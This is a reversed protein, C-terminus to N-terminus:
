RLSTRSEAPSNPLSALAERCRRETAYAGRELPHQDAPKGVYRLGLILYAIYWPLVGYHYAQYWHYAEHLRLCKDPQSSRYLVVPWLTVAEVPLWRLGKIEIM